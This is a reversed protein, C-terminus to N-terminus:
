LAILKPHTIGKFMATTLVLAHTPGGQRLGSVVRKKFLVLDIDGPLYHFALMPNIVQMKEDAM